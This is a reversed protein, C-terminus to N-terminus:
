NIQKTFGLRIGYDMLHEKIPYANSYTSLHQYRIQPGIQWSSTGARYTLNLGVSTNVNWRRMFQGGDTYHKYDSSLVYSTNNLMLTPQVSAETNMGWNRGQIADWQLGVPISIQYVRNQLQTSKYGTNNNYPSYFSITEVGRNNILSLSALDNTRSQFTEIFYQRVNLQVGTKFKLRGSVHYLAAFGIELGVAPRHRVVSNVDATGTSLPISAGAAPQVAPQIVEKAKRDSLRRYSTSPTIYFQFGLRSNRRPLEKTKVIVQGEPLLDKPERMSLKKGTAITEDTTLKVTPQDLTADHDAEVPAEAAILLYHDPLVRQQPTLVAAAKAPGTTGAAILEPTVPITNAATFAHEALSNDFTQETIRGSAMKGFYSNDKSDERTASVILGAKKVPQAPIALSKSRIVPQEHLPQNGLMTSVTLATIIFLSIFTLAPWAKYGHLETRINKWVHDSPYMRHQKVENQLFQEFEDQYMENEM